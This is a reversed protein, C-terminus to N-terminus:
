RILLPPLEQYQCIQSSPPYPIPIAHFNRTSYGPADIV